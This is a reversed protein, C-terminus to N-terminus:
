PSTYTPEPYVAIVNKDVYYDTSSNLDRNTVFDDTWRVIVYVNYGSLGAASTIAAGTLASIPIKESGSSSSSYSRSYTEGYPDNDGDGTIWGEGSTENIVAINFVVTAPIDNWGHVILDNGHIIWAM